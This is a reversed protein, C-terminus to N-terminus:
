QLKREWVRPLDLVGENHHHRFFTRGVSQRAQFGSQDKAKMGKGGAIFLEVGLGGDLKKGVGVVHGEDEGLGIPGEVKVADIRILVVDGFLEGVVEVAMEFEGVPGAPGDEAYGHPAISRSVEVGLVGVEKGGTSRKRPGEVDGEHLFQGFSVGVSHTLLTQVGDELIGKVGEKVPGERFISFDGEETSFRVEEVGGVEAQRFLQFLFPDSGMDVEFFAVMVPDEPRTNKFLTQTKEM